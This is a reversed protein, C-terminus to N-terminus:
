AARYVGCIKHGDLDLFYCLHIVGAASERAGPPDEVSIGGNAVPVDHLEKV